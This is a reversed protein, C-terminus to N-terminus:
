SVLFANASSFRALFRSIKVSSELCEVSEPFICPTGCIKRRLAIVRTLKIIVSCFGRSRFNTSNRFCAVSLFRGTGPISKSIKLLIDIGTFLATQWHRENGPCSLPAFKYHFKPESLRICHIPRSRLSTTPPRQIEM